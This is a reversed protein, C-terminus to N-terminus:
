LHKSFEGETQEKHRDQWLKLPKLYIDQSAKRFMCRDLSNLADHAVMDCTSAALRVLIYLYLCFLLHLILSFYYM